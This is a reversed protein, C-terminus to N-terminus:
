AKNVKDNIHDTFKLNADFTVGLDKMNDVGELQTPGMMYTAETKVNLNTRKYFSM